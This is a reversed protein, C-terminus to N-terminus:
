EIIVKKQFVGEKTTLKLLYVGSDTDTLKLKITNIGNVLMKKESYILQGSLDFLKCDVDQVVSSNLEINFNGSGPNPYIKLKDSSGIDYVSEVFEINILFYGLAFVEADDAKSIRYQVTDLGWYDTDPMYSIISDTVTATGHNAGEEISLVLDFGAENVDNDMVNVSVEQNM